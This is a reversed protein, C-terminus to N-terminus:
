TDEAKVSAQLTMALRSISSGAVLGGRIHQVEIIANVAVERADHKVVLMGDRLNQLAGCSENSIAMAALIPIAPDSFEGDPTRGAITDITDGLAACEMFYQINSVPKIEFLHSRIGLAGSRAEVTESILV